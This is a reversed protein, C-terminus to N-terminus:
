IHNFDDLRFNFIFGFLKYQRSNEVSIYFFISWALLCQLTPVHELCWRRKVQWFRLVAIPVSTLSWRLFRPICKYLFLFYLPASLIFSTCHFSHLSAFEGSTPVQWVFTLCQLRHCPESTHEYPVVCTWAMCLLDIIM